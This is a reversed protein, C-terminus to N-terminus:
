PWGTIALSTRCDLVPDPSVIEYGPPNACTAAAPHDFQGTVQVVQGLPLPDPAQGAPDLHLLLWDETSQQPATESEDVLLATIPQGDSGPLSYVGLWEPLVYGGDIDCNCDVIRAAFTFPEDYCALRAGPSLGALLSVSVGISDCGLEIPQLDANANAKTLWGSRWGTESADLPVLQYWGDGDAAESAIWANTGAAVVGAPDSAADPEEHLELDTTAVAASDLVIAPPTSAAPTPSLSAPPPASAPPASAPAHPSPPAIMEPVPSSTPLAAPVACGALVIAAVALVGKFRM